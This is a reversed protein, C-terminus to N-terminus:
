RIMGSHGGDQVDSGVAEHLDVIRGRQALMQVMDTNNQEQAMKNCDLLDQLASGIRKASFSVRFM